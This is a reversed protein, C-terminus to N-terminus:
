AQYAQAFTAKREEDRASLEANNTQLINAENQWHDAQSKMFQATQTQSDLFQIQEDARDLREQRPSLRHKFFAARRLPMAERCPLSPLRSVYYCAVQSRIDEMIERQVHPVMNQLGAPTALADVAVLPYAETANPVPLAPYVDDETRNGTDQPDHPASSETGIREDDVTTPGADIVDADGHAWQNDEPLQYHTPSYVDSVPPPAPLGTRTFHDLRVSEVPSGARPKDFIHPYDDREVRNPLSHASTRLNRISPSQAAQRPLLVPPPLMQGTKKTAGSQDSPPGGLDHDHVPRQQDTRRFPARQTPASMSKDTFTGGGRDKQSQQKALPEAYGKGQEGGRAPMQQAKAARM